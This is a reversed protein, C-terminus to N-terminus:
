QLQGWAQRAPLVPVCSFTPSTSSISSNTVVKHNPPCGANQASAGESSGNTGRPTNLPTGPTLNISPASVTGTELRKGAAFTGGTGKGEDPGVQHNGDIDIQAETVFGTLANMTMGFSDGGVACADQQPLWTNADVYGLGYKGEAVFREAGQGSAPVPLDYFWGLQTGPFSVKSLYRINDSEILPIAVLRSREAATTWTSSKRVQVAYFSQRQSAARDAQVLLRGTGFFIQVGGGLFSTVSPSATIPQRAGLVDKAIFVPNTGGITVWDSINTASTDLGWLNGKLDGAYVAKVIGEDIHAGVGGLGNASPHGSTADFAYSGLVAGTYLDLVFLKARGASSYYGNSVFVVWKGNVGATRAIIPKGLPYGLDPDRFEWLVNALEGYPTGVDLAFVSRGGAGTTGVVVTTWAGSRYADSIAIKGDVLYQHPKGSEVLGNLKTYVSNPVFAFREEGTSANFAHLMGDNSGVFVTRYNANDRKANLWAQYTTGEVGPLSKFGYNSNGSIAVNSNVVDGMLYKRDRLTGGNAREYTKDGKIYNTLIELAKDERQTPTLGTWNLSPILSLSQYLNTLNLPARQTAPIPATGAGTFFNASGAAGSTASPSWTLLRRTSWQNGTFALTTNTSWIPSGIVGGISIRAGSVEGSWDASDFRAVYSWSDTSLGTSGTAVGASTGNRKSIDLFARRLQQRLEAADSVLFYNDPEGIKQKDWKRKEDSASGAAPAVGQQLLVVDNTAPDRVDPYGGWKAAYWLPDHPIFKASPTDSPTFARTDTIPLGTHGPERPTDLEYTADQSGCAQNDGWTNNCSDVDRVVFYTGDASTGSIVYGMHQVFGGAAYTSNLTVQVKGDANLLYEYEVIADMDHDAGQEVDEFNIRFKGAPRGGNKTPDTPFGPQNVLYDIYFDVIQNAPQYTSSAGNITVGAPILTVSKTIKGSSDKAVPIQIRPLPSALAVSYTDVNQVGRMNPRLDTTKGYHAVAAAYYSGGRTPEEPALGRINGFGTVDKATARGDYTAASQGVFYRGSIGEATSVKNAVAAAAFTAPGSLGVGGLDESIGAGFATGPIEDADFSAYIDSIVMQVPKSCYPLDNVVYPDQWAPRPLGRSNDRTPNASVYQPTPSTKGALYRLGEYMMEAVPNGWDTCINGGTASESPGNTYWGCDYAYNAGFGQVRFANITNVIAANSTFKGTELDVEDRFNSINKRLVAGSFNRDYSGSMLGFRMQGDEGFEHLVGTPKYSTPASTPYGRCDQELMGAVCVKVRVTYDQISGAVDPGNAGNLVRSGAVPREISVWEWIRYPQGTMVRLLPTQSNLLTVSAFLVVKGAAPAPIPTYQTIDYGNVSTPNYVPVATTGLNPNRYEKGFSHADQPIYARELITESNSDTSRLGGYLVRRLADIRTTTVYNLFDGSWKGSCKKDATTNSPVFLGGSYTYCKYSDFLGFYTISTPKFGIDIEGDGNIDSADNYAEYYLKHDRGMNLLVAPPASATLFLPNQDPQTPQANAGSFWFACIGAACIRQLISLLFYNSNSTLSLPKKM